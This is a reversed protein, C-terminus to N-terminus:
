GNNLIRKLKKERSLLIREKRIQEHYRSVNAISYTNKHINKIYKFDLINIGSKSEDWMVDYGDYSKWKGCSQSKNYHRTKVLSIYDNGNEIIIDGNQKHKELIDPTWKDYKGYTLFYDMREFNSLVILSHDLQNDYLMVGYLKYKM